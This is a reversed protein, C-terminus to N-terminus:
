GMDVFLVRSGPIRFREIIIMEGEAIRRDVDAIISPLDQEMCTFSVPLKIGGEVVFTIQFQKPQPPAYGPPTTARAQPQSPVFPEEPIPQDMPNPQERYQPPPLPVEQELEARQKSLKEAEEAARKERETDEDEKKGSLIDSIKM